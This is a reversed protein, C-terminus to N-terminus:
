KPLLLASSFSETPLYGGMASGGLFGAARGATGCPRVGTGRPRVCNGEHLLQKHGDVPYCRRNRLRVASVVLTDSVAGGEGEFATNVLM